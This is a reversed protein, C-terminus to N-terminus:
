KDWDPVFDPKGDEIWLSLAYQLDEGIDSDGGFKLNLEPLYEDIELGGWREKLIRIFDGYAASERSAILAIKKPFRPLTRKRSVDFLGEQMLKNRLAELAKRLGGEGIL